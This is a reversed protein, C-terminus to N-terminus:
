GEERERAVEEGCWDCYLVRERVPRGYSEVEGDQLATAPRACCGAFTGEIDNDPDGACVECAVVTAEYGAHDGTHVRYTYATANM